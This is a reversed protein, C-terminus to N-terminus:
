SATWATLATNVHITVTDATNRAYGGGLTAAIPIHRERAWQFVCKDREALGAITLKLEGLQDEEFPDAGAQYLILEPQFEDLLKPIQSRMLALYREDRVGKELHIDTLHVAKGFKERDNFAVPKDDADLLTRKRDHKFVSRFIWGHSHFDGFQTHELQKNFEPTGLKELFSVNSWLGRIAAREPNRTQVEYQEKASPNRQERPWMHEGDMENDWWTMGYYTAVMNTGPHMHCTM